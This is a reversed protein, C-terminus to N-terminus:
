WIATLLAKITHGIALWSVGGIAVYLAWALLVVFALVLGLEQSGKPKNKASHERGGRHLALGGTKVSESAM